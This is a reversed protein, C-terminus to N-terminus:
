LKEKSPSKLSDMLQTFSMESPQFRDQKHLKWLVIDFRGGDLRWDSANRRVDSGSRCDSVGAQIHNNVDGNRYVVDVLTGKEVPLYGPNPKWDNM